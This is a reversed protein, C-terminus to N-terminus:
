GIKGDPFMALLENLDNSRKPRKHGILAAAIKRLPPYDEFSHTLAALFPM